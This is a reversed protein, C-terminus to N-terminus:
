NALEKNGALPNEAKDAGASVLGESGEGRDAAAEAASPQHNGLLVRRLATDPPAYTWGLQWTATCWVAIFVVELLGYRRGSLGDAESPRVSVPCGPRLAAYLVPVGAALSAEDPQFTSIAVTTAFAINQYCTRHIVIDSGDQSSHM